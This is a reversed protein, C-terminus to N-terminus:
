NWLSIGRNEKPNEKQEELEQKYGKYCFYCRDGYMEDYNSHFGVLKETGKLEEICSDCVPVTPYVDSDLEGDSIDHVMYIKM